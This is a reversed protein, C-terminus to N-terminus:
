FIGGFGEIGLIKGVIQVLWYSIFVIIFGILANTVKGRAEQLAKPEGGSIIMHYGGYILYLLLLLGAATFIYPIVFNIIDGLSQGAFKFNNRGELNNFDIQALKM